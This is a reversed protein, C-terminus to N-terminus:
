LRNSHSCHGVDPLLAAVLPPPKVVFRHSRHGVAGHVANAVQSHRGLLLRRWLGTGGASALDSEEVNDSATEQGM